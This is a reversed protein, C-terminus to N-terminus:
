EVSTELLSEAIRKGAEHPTAEKVFQYEKLLPPLQRMDVDETIVPIITKKDAVAAGIEFFIWPSDVSNASLIVIFTNSERLAKEIQEKWRVGPSLEAVDFAQIGFEHLASVFEAVWLRDKSAYSLFVDPAQTKAM